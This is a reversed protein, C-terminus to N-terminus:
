KQYQQSSDRLKKKRKLIKSNQGFLNFMNHHLTIASVILLTLKKKMEADEM